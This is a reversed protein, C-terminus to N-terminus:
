TFNNTTLRDPFKIGTNADIIITLTHGFEFKQEAGALLTCLSPNQFCCTLLQTLLEDAGLSM